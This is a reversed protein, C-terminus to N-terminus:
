NVKRWVTLYTESPMVIRKENAPLAKGDSPRWFLTGAADAFQDPTANAIEQQGQRRLVVVIHHAFPGRLHHRTKASVAQLPSESVWTKTSNQKPNNNCNHPYQGSNESAANPNAKSYSIGRM